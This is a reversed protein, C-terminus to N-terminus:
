NDCNKCPIPNESLIYIENDREDITVNFLSYEQNIITRIEEITVFQNNTISRDMTYFWMNGTKIAVLEKYIIEGM